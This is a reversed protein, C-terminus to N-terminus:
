GIKGIGHFKMTKEDDGPGGSSYLTTLASALLVPLPRNPIVGNQSLSYMGESITKPLTPGLPENSILWIPGVRGFVMLSPMYERDWFPTIGFRGKGTSSALANVVSYEEPPGPSSSFVMFNWPIPVRYHRLFHSRPHVIHSAVPFFFLVFAACATPFWILCRRLMHLYKARIPHLQRFPRSAMWNAADYQIKFRRTKRRIVILSAVTVVLGIVFAFIAFRPDVLAAVAVTLVTGIVFVTTELAFLLLRKLVRVRLDM